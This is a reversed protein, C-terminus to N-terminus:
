EAKRKKIYILAAIIGIASALLLIVWAWPKSSDGTKPPELPKDEKFTEVKLKYQAENGVNDIISVIHEKDDAAITFKGDTLEIKEGDLKIEKIGTLEDSASFVTDGIYTKGDEIDSIPPTNDFGIKDEIDFADTIAGDSERKIYFKKDADQSFSLSEEYTGDISTSLKYGAGAKVSVSNNEKFWYKNGDFYEYGNISYAEDLNSLYDIKSVIIM